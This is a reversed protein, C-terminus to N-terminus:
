GFLIVQSILILFFTALYQGTLSFIQMLNENVALSHSFNNWSFGTFINGRLFEGISICSALSIIKNIKTDWFITPIIFSPSLFLLMLLPGIYPLGDSSGLICGWWGIYFGVINIIMKLKDNM